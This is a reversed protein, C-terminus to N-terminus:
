LDVWGPPPAKGPHVAGCQGCTRAAEDAYFAQYLPPLDTVINKVEVEIRHVLGGCQFCYWEFGDTQGPQRAGEIVLGVSGAVPRQPSHRVHPPLLFIDGERIRVDHIRGGEAIKLIMDGRIQHFFEEVPDDHFDVRQNPGGVVQVVMGADEFVLKNGVPPKLLHAHSDIWAAFNFPPRLGSPIM